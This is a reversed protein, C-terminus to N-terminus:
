FDSENFGFADHSELRSMLDGITSKQHLESLSLRGSIAQLHAFYCSTALADAIDAHRTRRNRDRIETVGDVTLLRRVGLLEAVLDKNPPIILTRSRIRQELINWSSARESRNGNYGDVVRAWPEKKKIQKVMRIAWPMARTDLRLDRVGPFMPMVAQLYELVADPDIVGDKMKRPEWIKIHSVRVHEWPTDSKEPDEELFVLTTLDRSISCDLFGVTPRVSGPQNKLDKDIIADIEKKSVFDDGKATFENAVEVEVYHRTEDLEGFVSEIANITQKNIQPNLEAQRDARFLHFNKNPKEELHEVLSKFWDSEGGDTIGAASMILIRGSWPHLADGCVPCAMDGDGAGDIHYHGRSCEIGGAEFVSPILSMAVRAQIDRAEDIVILSRGRGTISKFSTSVGEWKSQNKPVQIINGAVKSSKALQPSRQVVGTFNDAALATTQDEAAAVYTIYKHKRQFISSLCYGAANFTKGARRPLCLVTVVITEAVLGECAECDVGNHSGVVEGARDKCDDCCNKKNRPWLKYGDLPGWMEDRVWERGEMSFKRGQKDEIFKEAFKVRKEVSPAPTKKSDPAEM